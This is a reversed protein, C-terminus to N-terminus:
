LNLARKSQALIMGHEDYATVTFIVKGQKKWDANIYNFVAGSKIDNLIENVPKDALDTIKGTCYGKEGNLNKWEIRVM